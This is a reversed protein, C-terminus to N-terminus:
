LWNFCINTTVGVGTVKRTTCLSGSGIGVRIMDVGNKILGNTGEYTVVNGAM